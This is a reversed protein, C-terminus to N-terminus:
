GCRWGKIGQGNSVCHIYGPINIKSDSIKGDLWTESFTLLHIKSDLSKCIFRLEDIKRTLSQINPHIVKFGRYNVLNQLDSPLSVPEGEDLEKLPLTYCLHCAKSQEFDASLCKLHFHQCVTCQTSAQNRRISKVCSTCVMGRQSPGPNLSIDNCLLLLANILLQRHTLNILRIWQISCSVMTTKRRVATAMSTLKSTAACGPYSSLNQAINLEVSRGSRSQPVINREEISTGEFIM